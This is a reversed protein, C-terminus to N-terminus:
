PLRVAWSEMRGDPNIGRGVIVRGDRSMSEASTLRWNATTLGYASALWDQLRVMGAGENWIFAEMGAGTESTGVVRKGDGSVANACSYFEGGPLDGLPEAGSQAMWRFAQPGAASDSLGVVYTGDSSVARAEGFQGGSLGALPEPGGTTWRCAHRGLQSSAYGVIVAGDASVALASSGMSGGPLNGLDELVHARWCVATPGAVGTGYGVVTTGDASVALAASCFDGGPLDGLPRLGDSEHTFAELGVSSQGQGVLVAGGNSAGLVVGFPGGGPLDGLVAGGTTGPQWQMAAVYPLHDPDGCGVIVSGDPALGTVRSELGITDEDGLRYFGPIGPPPPVPGSVSVFLLVLLEENASRTLRLVGFYSGSTLGSRDLTVRVRDGIVTAKQAIEAKAWASSTSVAYPIAPDAEVTLWMESLTSGFDLRSAATRFVGPEGSFGDGMGVSGVAGEGGAGGGGPAIGGDGTDGGGDSGPDEASDPIGDGDSDIGGDGPSGDDPNEFLEGLVNPGKSDPACGAHFAAGMVAFAAPVFLSSARLWRSNKM